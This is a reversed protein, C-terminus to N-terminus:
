LKKSCITRWAPSRIEGKYLIILRLSAKTFVLYIM